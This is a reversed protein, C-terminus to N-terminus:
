VLERTPIAKKVAFLVPVDTLSAMTPSFIQQQTTLSSIEESIEINTEIIQRMEVDIDEKTDLTVTSHFLDRVPFEFIHNIAIDIDTKRIASFLVYLANNTATVVDGDRRIHCLRLCEEASMGPLLILKILSFDVNSYISRSIVSSCYQVFDDGQLYGKKGYKQSYKLLAELSLPLNRNMVQGQVAEVQTMFRPFPVQHPVILNIGSRLLLKEDTYRLCQQTERIIIKLQSGYNTRLEFCHIALEQIENQNTCCFIITAAQPKDLIGLLQQNSDAVVMGKPLQKNLHLATKNIYCIHTDPKNELTGKMQRKEYRTAELKNQQNHALIFEDGATVGYSSLWFRVFYSFRQEDLARMSSLGSITQNLTLLKSELENMGLYGYVCLSLCLNRRNASHKIHSLFSEIETITLSSLLSENILLIHQTNGKSKTNIKHIDKALELPNPSLPYSKNTLFHALKIHRDTLRSFIDNSNSDLGSLFSEKNSFVTLLNNSDNNITSSLFDIAMSLTSFLNVYVSKSEKKTVLLPLTRSLSM